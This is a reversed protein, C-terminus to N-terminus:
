KKKIKLGKRRGASLAIAIAQKAKTVKPGKVGGSHLTKHKFERMVQAVKAKGKSLKKNRVIKGKADVKHPTEGASLLPNKVLKPM